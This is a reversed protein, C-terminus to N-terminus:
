ASQGISFCARWASSSAAQELRGKGHPVDQLWQGSYCSGDAWVQVLWAGLSDPRSSAQTMSWISWTNMSKEHRRGKAMGFAGQFSLPSKLCIPRVHVLFLCSRLWAILNSAMVILNSAMAKLNSAVALINSVMEKSFFFILVFGLAADLRVVRGHLQRWSQRGSQDESALFSFLLQRWITGFHTWTQGLKQLNSSCHFRCLQGLLLYGHGKHEFM